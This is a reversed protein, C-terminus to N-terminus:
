LQTSQLNGFLLQFKSSYEASCCNETDTEWTKFHGQKINVKVLLWHTVIYFCMNKWWNRKAEKFQNIKKRFLMLIALVLNELLFPM